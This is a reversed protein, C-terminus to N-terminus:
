PQAGGERAQMRSQIFSDIEHEVLGIKRKGIRIPKPLGPIYWQSKPNIGEYYASRSMRGLRHLGEELELVELGIHTTQNM